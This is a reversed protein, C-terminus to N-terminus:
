KYQKSTQNKALMISSEKNVMQDIKKKQSKFALLRQGELSNSIHPHAKVPNIPRGYRIVEYHLHTGTASGTSGVYGIVQGQKIRSGRKIQPHFKSMHAYLTTYESNHRVTIYKGYSRSHQALQVIGNGASLIPTGRKAVYDVGRHMKRCRSIPHVRVGFGSSIRTHQIPKQLLAKKLDKGDSHFYKTNNNKDRYQYIEFKKGNLSLSAYLINTNSIKKNHPNENYNFLIKFESNSRIDQKFNVEHGLLKMYDMAIASPTNTKIISTYLNDKVFGQILKSKSSVPQKLLSLNYGEKKGDYVGNIIKNDIYIIINYPREGVKVRSGDKASVLIGINQGINLTSIDYVKSVAKSIIYSEQPPIGISLLVGIFNDGSQVTHQHKLDIFQTSPIAQTFPIPQSFPKDHKDSKDNIVESSAIQDINNRAVIPPSSRTIVFLFNCIIVIISFIFLLFNVRELKVLGLLKYLLFNRM